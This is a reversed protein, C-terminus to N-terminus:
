LIEGIDKSLRNFVTFGLWFVAIGFALLAPVV